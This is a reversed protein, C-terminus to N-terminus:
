DLLYSYLSRTKFIYLCNQYDLKCCIKLFSVWIYLVFLKRDMLQPIDFMNPCSISILFLSAHMLCRLRYCTYQVCPRMYCATVQFQIAQLYNKCINQQIILDCTLIEKLYITQSSYICILFGVFYNMTFHWLIQQTPIEYVSVFIEKWSRYIYILFFFYM